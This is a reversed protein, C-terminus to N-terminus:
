VEFWNKLKGDISNKRDSHLLYSNVAIMNLPTRSNRIFDAETVETLETSNRVIYRTSFNHGVLFKTLENRTAAQKPTEVIITKIRQENLMKKAGHLVSLDFGEVDIKLVDILDIQTQNAFVDLTTVPVQHLSDVIDEPNQVTGLHNNGPDKYRTFTSYGVFDAIAKNHTTIRGNPVSSVNQKLRSFNLSDAEFSHVFHKNPGFHSMALSIVGIYAGADISILPRESDGFLQYICKLQEIVGTDDTGPELKKRGM